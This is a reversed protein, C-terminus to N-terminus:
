TYCSDQKLTKYRHWDLPRGPGRSWRDIAEGAPLSAVLLQVIFDDTGVGLRPGWWEKEWPLYGSRSETPNVGPTISLPACNWEAPPHTSEALHRGLEAISHHWKATSTSLTSPAKPVSIIRHDAPTFQSPPHSTSLRRGIGVVNRLIAQSERVRGASYIIFWRQM